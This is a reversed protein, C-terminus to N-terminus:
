FCFDKCFLRMCLRTWLKIHKRLICGPLSMYENRDLMQVSIQLSTIIFRMLMLLICNTNESNWNVFPRISLNCATLCVMTPALTVDSISM